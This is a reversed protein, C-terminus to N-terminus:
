RIVAFGYTESVPTIAAATSNVYTIAITNAASVRVNGISLGAQASPKSLVVVDGVNLNPVTFPQEASTDAAVSAPTLLATGKGVGLFTTLGPLPSVNTYGEKRVSQPVLSDRYVGLASM